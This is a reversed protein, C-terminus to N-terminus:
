FHVNREKALNILYSYRAKAAMINYSAYDIGATDTMENFVSEACALERRAEIIDDVLRQNETRPPMEGRIGRSVSEAVAMAREAAGTINFNM